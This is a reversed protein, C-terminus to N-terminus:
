KKTLLVTIEHRNHFLQRAEKIVFQKRLDYLISNIYDYGYEKPLKLTIVGFGNKNMNKFFSHFIAVSQKITMKMDNVIVDFKTDPNNELFDQSSGKFHRVQKNKKLRPDLNAPDIAIVDYGCETLVQTWGGPAAGLDIAIGKHTEIDFSEFVERLKFEARSISAQDKSYHVQGASWKSLQLYPTSVGYYVQDETFYLSVIQEPNKVNLTYGAAKLADVNNNRVDISAQRQSQPSRIQFSFSLDKDLELTSSLDKAQAISILDEIPFLHRIFIIPTTKIVEVLKENDLKTDLIAETDSLWELSGLGKHDNIEQALLHDSNENCTILYKM